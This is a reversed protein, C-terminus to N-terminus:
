VGARVLLILVVIMIVTFLQMGVRYSMLRNSQVGTIDKGRAMTVIGRVLIAATALAGLIVFILVVTSM